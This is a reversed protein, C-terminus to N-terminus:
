NIILAIFLNFNIFLNIFYLHYKVIISLLYNILYATNFYVLIIIM